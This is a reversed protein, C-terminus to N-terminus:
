KKFEKVQQILEQISPAGGVLHQNQIYKSSDNFQEYFTSDYKHWERKNHGRVRQEETVKKGNITLFGWAKGRRENADYNLPAVKTITWYCDPRKWISRTVKQGVGAKPEFLLIDYLNNPKKRPVFDLSTKSPEKLAGKAKLAEKVAKVAASM